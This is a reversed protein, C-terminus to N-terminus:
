NHACLYHQGKHLCLTCCSNSLIRSQRHFKDVLWVLAALLGTKHAWHSFGMMRSCWLTDERGMQFTRFTLSNSITEVQQQMSNYQGLDFRWDKRQMQIRKTAGKERRYHHQALASSLWCGPSPVGWLLVQQRQREESSQHGGTSRSTAILRTTVCTRLEWSPANNSRPWTNGTEKPPLLQALLGSQLWILSQSEKPSIRVLDDM